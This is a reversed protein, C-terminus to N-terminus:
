LINYTSHLCTKWENQCYKNIYDKNWDIDNNDIDIGNNSISIRTPGRPLFKNLLQPLMTPNQLIMHLIMGLSETTHCGFGIILGGIIKLCQQWVPWSCQSWKIFSGTLLSPHEDIGDKANFTVMLTQQIISRWGVDVMIDVHKLTDYVRMMKSSSTRITTDGRDRM